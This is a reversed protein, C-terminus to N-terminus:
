AEDSRMSQQVETKLISRVRDRLSIYEETSQTERSRPRPLDIEIIDKISGPRATMIGLRDGLTLAEDIDHTVYLATKRDENWITLLEDQLVEKTQADLAGFPEDMLLIVPDNAFSRAISVRQKMGGSLQHPYSDEFGALNVKEIYKRAVEYRTAKDVGRMKLGFAVNDIVSKWPFIGYEQFVMSTLPKDSGDGNQYINVSGSDFDLLDGVIRLVTSKGCGSPGLLCFFEGDKIELDVDDVAVVEGQKSEYSKRVNSLEIRFPFSDDSEIVQPPM